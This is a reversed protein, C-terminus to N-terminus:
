QRSQAGKGKHAPAHAPEPAAPAAQPPQAALQQEIRNGQEQLNNLQEPLAALWVAPRPHNRLCSDPHDAALENRSTRVCRAAAQWPTGLRAAWAQTMQREIVSSQQRAADQM